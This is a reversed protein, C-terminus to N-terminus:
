HFGSLMIDRGDFISRVLERGRAVILRLGIGRRYLIDLGQQPTSPANSMEVSRTPNYPVEFGCGLLISDSAVRPTGGKGIVKM